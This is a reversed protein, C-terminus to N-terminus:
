GFRRELIMNKIKVNLDMWDGQMYLINGMDDEARSSYIISGFTDYPQGLYNRKKKLYKLMYSEDNLAREVNNRAKRINKIAKERGLGYDEAVAISEDALAIFEEMSAVDGREVGTSLGGEHRYLHTKFDVFYNILENQTVVNSSVDRAPITTRIGRAALSHREPENRWGVPKRM